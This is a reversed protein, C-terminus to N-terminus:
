NFLLYPLEQSLIECQKEEQKNGQFEAQFLEQLTIATLVSAVPCVSEAM